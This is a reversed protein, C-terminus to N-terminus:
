TMLDYIAERHLVLLAKLLSAPHPKAAEEAAEEAVLNFYPPLLIAAKLWREAFGAVSRLRSQSAAFREWSRHSLM